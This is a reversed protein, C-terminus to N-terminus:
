REKIRYDIKEGTAEYHDLLEQRIHNVMQQSFSWSFGSKRKYYAVAKNAKKAWLLSAVQQYVDADVPVRHYEFGFRRSKDRYRHEKAMSYLLRVGMLLFALGIIVYLWNWITWDSISIPDM